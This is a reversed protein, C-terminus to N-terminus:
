ATEKANKIAQRITELWEGCYVAEDDPPLHPLAKLIAKEAGILASLLETNM